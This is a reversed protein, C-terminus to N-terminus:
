KYIEKFINLNDDVSNKDNIIAFVTQKFLTAYDEKYLVDYFSYGVDYPDNKFVGCGWAGLVMYEVGNKAALSLMLRVKNKMITHYNKPKDVLGDVYVENDEDYYSDANLNVSAITVVDVKIPEMDNYDKDKFFVADKTYLAEDDELPYFDQTVTECLNSCRFLSEEQASAGEAVGGGAKSASAMNLVCTKGKKAYKVATSVTDLNIVIVKKPIQIGGELESFKATYSIDNNISATRKTNNFVTKLESKEM